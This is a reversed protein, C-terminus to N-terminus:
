QATNLIYEVAATVQADTLATNGGRAPMLGAEGQFGNIAHDMLVEFGQAMRAQWAAADDLRPAGGIGATHCVACSAAYVEEGSLEVGATPAPAAVDTIRLEGVPALRMHMGAPSNHAAHALLGAGLLTTLILPRLM